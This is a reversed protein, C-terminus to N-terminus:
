KHLCVSTNYRNHQSFAHSTEPLLTLTSTSEARRRKEQQHILSGQASTVKIKRM